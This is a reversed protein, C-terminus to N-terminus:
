RQREDFTKAIGHLSQLQDVPTLTQQQNTVMFDRIHDRSNLLLFGYTWFILSIFDWMGIPDGALVTSLWDWMFMGSLVLVVVRGTNSRFLLAFSFVLLGGCKLLETIWDTTTWGLLVFEVANLGTEMAFLTAMRFLYVFGSLLAILAFSRVNNSLKFPNGSSVSDSVAPSAEDPDAGISTDTTAFLPRLWTPIAPQLFGGEPLNALQRLLFMTEIAIWAATLMSFDNLWIVRVTDLIGVAAGGLITRRGVTLAGRWRIMVAGAFLGGGELIQLIAHNLIGIELVTLGMVLTFWDIFLGIRKGRPIVEIWSAVAPPLQGSPTRAPDTEAQDSHGPAIEAPDTDTTSLEDDESVEQSSPVGEQKAAGHVSLAFECGCHDCKGRLSAPLETFENLSNCNPCNQEHVSMAVGM